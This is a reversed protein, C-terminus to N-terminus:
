GRARGQVAAIAQSAANRVHGDSDHELRRLEAMASGTGFEAALECAWQRHRPIPDTAWLGFVTSWVDGSINARISWAAQKRVEKDPDHQMANLVPEFDTPRWIGTLARMAATRTAVDASRLLKTIGDHALGDLWRGLVECSTRIVFPSPDSLAARVVSAVERGLEHKGIAEIAARRVLPQTSKARVILTNLAESGPTRAVAEFAAWQEPGCGDLMPLLEALPKGLPVPIGNVLDTSSM